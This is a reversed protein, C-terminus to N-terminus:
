YASLINKCFPLRTSIQYNQSCLQINESKKELFSIETSINCFAIKKVM